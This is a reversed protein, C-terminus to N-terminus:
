QVLLWLTGQICSNLEESLYDARSTANTGFVASM